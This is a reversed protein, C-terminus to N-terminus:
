KDKVIIVSVAGTKKLRGIDSTCKKFSSDTISRYVIIQPAYLSQIDRILEVKTKSEPATNM